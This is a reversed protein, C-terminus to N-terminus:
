GKSLNGRLAQPDDIPAAAGSTMKGEEAVAEAEPDPHVILAAVNGLRVAPRSTAGQVEDRAIRGGNGEERRKVERHAEQVGPTRHTVLLPDKRLHPPTNGAWARPERGHNRGGGPRRAWSPIPRHPLAAHLLHSPQSSICSQM